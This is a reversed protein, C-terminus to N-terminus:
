AEREPGQCIRCQTYNCEDESRETPVDCASCTDSLCNRCSPWATYEESRKGCHDCTTAFRVMTM